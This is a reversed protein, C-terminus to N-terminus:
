STAKSPFLRRPLLLSVLLSLFALILSIRMASSLQANVTQTRVERISGALVGTRPDDAVAMAQRISLSKPLRDLETAAIGQARAAAELPQRLNAQSMALAAGIGVLAGLGVPLRVNRGITRGLASLATTAGVGALGALIWILVSPVTLLLAVASLVACPVIVLWIGRRVTLRHTARVNSRRRGRWLGFVAGILGVAFPIIMGAAGDSRSVFVASAALALIVSSCLLLTLAHAALPMRKM